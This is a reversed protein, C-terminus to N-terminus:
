RRRGGGGGGGFSSRGGGFSSGGGGGGSSSRGGSFSHGGSFSGGGSSRGGGSFSGGGGFSFSGGGGFSRSGGGFSPRSDAPGHPHPSVGGWPRPATAPPARFFPARTGPYPRASTVSAPAHIAAGRRGFPMAAPPVVRSPAPGRPLTPALPVVGRRPDAGGARQLYARGALETARGRVWPRQALPTGARGEIAQRPLTRPAIAALQATSTAERTGALMPGANVRVHAGPIPLARPNSVVSMRGFIRPAVEPPLTPRARGLDVAAAFRWSSRAGLPSGIRMQRPPLPSWGVYGGGARWTVWGPGWLTGPLWCWGRDAVVLWRGYHFPAWGWDFDSIWTWGYETLAWHGGTAYPSFDQGAIEVSPQWVRGYLDDDTWQGYPALADQFQTYAQPDYGDDYTQAVADDYSVDYDINGEITPEPPLAETARLQADTAEDALDAPLEGATEQARAPTAAFTLLSLLSVVAAARM